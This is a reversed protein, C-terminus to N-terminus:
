AFYRMVYERRYELGSLDARPPEAFAEAQIEFNEPDWRNSYNLNVHINWLVATACVTAISTDLKTSLGLRLCPFKKEWRGFIREISSKTSILSDNFAQEAANSPQVFPTFLYRKCGYGPDGWLIGTISVSFNHRSQFAASIIPHNGLHM